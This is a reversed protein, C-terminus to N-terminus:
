SFPIEDATPPDSTALAVLETGFKSRETTVRVPTRAERALKARAALGTKITTVEEGTSLLVSYRIVKPNRTPAERVEMIRVWGPLADAAPPPPPPPDPDPRPIPAPPPVHQAVVEPPLDAVETEDLMGLGCIALTVRRKAKTEAWMMADARPQGTLNLLSKAGISEDTRGEPLTARATVVFTDEVVERAMIQLSVHHLKRLQETAERKAYLTEKGERYMYAFPHTLPNLGLSDCVKAYYTVKQAETLQSLDGQLLLRMATQADITQLENAM